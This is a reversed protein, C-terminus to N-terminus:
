FDFDTLRQYINATRDVITLLNDEMLFSRNKITDKKFSQGLKKFVNTRKKLTM